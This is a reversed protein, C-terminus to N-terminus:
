LGVVGMMGDGQAAGWDITEGDREKEKVGEVVVDCIVVRTRGSESGGDM